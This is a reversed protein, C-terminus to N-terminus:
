RWFRRKSEQNAALVSTFMAFHKDSFQRDIHVSGFFWKDYKVSKAIDDLFNGLVNTNSLNYGSMYRKLSAPPEHTVIYDVERNVSELAPTCRAIEETSPMEQPWWTGQSIRIDKDKSEGGGFTFIKKGEIEYIQGRLLHYLNGMIHHAEGGAFPELQYNELLDFNEHTGDIFLTYFKKRSIKYLIKQAAETRDWVFGFDGCIILYDGDKLKKLEPDEFREFEGHM